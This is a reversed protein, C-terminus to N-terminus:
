IREKESRIRRESNEQAKAMRNLTEKFETKKRLMEQDIRRFVILGAVVAAGTLIGAIIEIM